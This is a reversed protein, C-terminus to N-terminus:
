NVSLEKNYEAFDTQFKNNKDDTAIVNNKFVSTQNKKDISVSSSKINLNEAFLPQFFFLFLIIHFKNKM